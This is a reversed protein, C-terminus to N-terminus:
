RAGIAKTVRSGFYQRRSGTGCLMRWRGQARPAHRRRYLRRADISRTRRARGSSAEMYVFKLGPCAWGSPQGRWFRARPPSIGNGALAARLQLEMFARLLDHAPAHRVCGSSPLSPTMAPRNAPGFAASRSVSRASALQLEHMLRRAAGIEAESFGATPNPSTAWSNSPPESSSNPISIAHAADAHAFAVGRVLALVLSHEILYGVLGGDRGGVRATLLLGIV